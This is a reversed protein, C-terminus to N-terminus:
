HENEIFILGNYEEDWCDTVDTEDQLDCYEGKNSYCGICPTELNDTSIATAMLESGKHTTIKDGAKM